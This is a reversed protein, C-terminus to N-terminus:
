WQTRLAARIGNRWQGKKRKRRARHYKALSTIEANGKTGRYGATQSHCNPCLFKLNVERDDLFNRNIHEVELILPKELWVGKLGCEKCEYPRGTEILARRLQYSKQRKGDNRVILIEQASKKGPGGRHNEGSNSARGTFHQTNLNLRQILKSLYTHAGGQFSRMGLDRMVGAVSVNKKVIPMLLERTYKRHM